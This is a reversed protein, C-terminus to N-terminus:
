KEHTMKEIFARAKEGHDKAVAPAPHWASEMYGDSRIRNRKEVWGTSYFKLLEIAEDLPNCDQTSNIKM